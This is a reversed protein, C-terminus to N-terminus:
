WIAAFLVLFVALAMFGMVRTAWAFGIRPQLQRFDVPYIIGDTEDDNLIM